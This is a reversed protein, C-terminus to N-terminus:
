KTKIYIYTGDTTISTAGYIKKYVAPVDTSNDDDKKKCGLSLAILILLLTVGTLKRKKMKNFKHHLEQKLCSIEPHFITKGIDAVAWLHILQDLLYM